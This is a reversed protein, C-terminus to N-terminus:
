KLNFDSLEPPVCQIQFRALSALQLHFLLNMKLWRLQEECSKLRPECWPYRLSRAANIKIKLELGDETPKAKGDKQTAKNVLAIILRYIAKCQVALTEIDKVGDEKFIKLAADGEGAAEDADILGQLRKLTSATSNVDVAIECLQGDADTVAEVYTQLTVALQLGFGVIDSISGSVGLAEAMATSSRISSPEYLFFCIPIM